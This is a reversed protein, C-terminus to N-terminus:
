RSSSISRPLRRIYVRMTFLVILAVLFAALVAINPIMMITGDLLTRVLSSNLLYARSLEAIGIFVVGAALPIFYTWASKKSALQRILPILIFSVIAVFLVMSIDIRQNFYGMSFDEFWLLTTIFLIFLIFAIAGDLISIVVSRPKSICASIIDKVFSGTDGISTQVTKGNSQATLLLELVDETICIKNCKSLPSNMISDKILEFERFYSENLKKEDAKRKARALYIFVVSSTGILIIVLSMVITSTGSMANEDAVIQLIATVIVSAALLISSIVIVKSRRTM